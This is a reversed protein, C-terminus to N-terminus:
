STMLEGEIHNTVFMSMAFLGLPKTYKSPFHYENNRVADNTSMEKNIWKRKM